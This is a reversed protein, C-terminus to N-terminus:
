VKLCFSHKARACLDHRMGTKRADTLEFCVQVLLSGDESEGADIDRFSKAAGLQLKELGFFSLRQSSAHGQEGGQTAGVGLHPIM